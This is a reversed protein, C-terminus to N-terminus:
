RSPAAARRPRSFRRRNWPEAALGGLMGAQYAISRMLGPASGDRRMGARPLHAAMGLATRITRVVRPRDVLGPHDDSFHLLSYGHEVAKSLNRRRSPSLRYDVVADPVWVFPAGSAHTKAYFAIENFGRGYSEDFGGVAQWVDRHFGMNSGWGARCGRHLEVPASLGLGWHRLRPPNLREIDLPGAAVSPPADRLARWHAELWDPRAEDDADLLLVIRGSAAQVGVNRPINFSPRTGADVVTTSVAACVPHARAVDPTGDTSGNDAVVLEWSCEARQAALADLQLGITGAMNRVPIVVSVDFRTLDGPM